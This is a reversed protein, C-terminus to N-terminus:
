RIDLIQARKRKKVEPVSEAIFTPLPAKPTEAEVQVQNELQDKKLLQTLGFADLETPTLPDIEQKSGITEVVFDPQIQPTPWVHEFGEFPMRHHYVDTTFSSIYFGDLGRDKSCGTLNEIEEKMVVRDFNAVKGKTKRLQGGDYSLSESEKMKEEEGILTEAWKAADGSCQLFIKNACGQIISNTNERGYIEFLQNIDQTALCLNGRYSRITNVFREFNHIRHIAHFEDLFLWTDRTVKVSNDLIAKIAQQTLVANLRQVTDERQTDNGLVLIWRKEQRRWERFSILEKGRWLGAIPEILDTHTYLTALIDDNPRDVYRISKSLRPYKKFMAILVEKDQLAALVHHLGWKLSRGAKAEAEAEYMFFRLVDRFVFTAGNRFFPSAEKLNPPVFGIAIEAATSKDICDKQIDWGVCRRDFPNLIKIEDEKVGKWRLFAHLEMKYDHVLGCAAQDESLGQDMLLQLTVSKGSGQAGMCFTGQNPAKSPLDIGGVKFGKEGQRLLARGRARAEAHKIRRRGRIHPENKLMKAGGFTVLAALPLASYIPRELYTFTLFSAFFIIALFCLRLV